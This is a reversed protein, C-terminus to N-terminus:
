MTDTSANKSCVACFEVSLKDKDVHLCVGGGGSPAGDEDEEKTGPLAYDHDGANENPSRFLSTSLRAGKLGTLRNLVQSLASDNALVARLYRAEGELERVRACLSRREQQLDRNEESLRAVQSELGRVYEKKRLRNLRAALANKNGPYGGRSQGAMNSSTASGAAMKELWTDGGSSEGNETHDTIDTCGVLQQLLEEFPEGEEGDGRWWGPSGEKVTGPPSYGPCVGRSRDSMDPNGQDKLKRVAQSKRQGRRAPPHRPLSLNARDTLRHRM